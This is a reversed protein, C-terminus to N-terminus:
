PQKDNIRIYQPYEKPPQNTAKAPKANELLVFWVDVTLVSLLLDM